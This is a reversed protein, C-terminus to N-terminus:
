FCYITFPFPVFPDSGEDWRQPVLPRVGKGREWEERKQKKHSISIATENKTHVPASPGFFILGILFSGGFLAVRFLAWVM